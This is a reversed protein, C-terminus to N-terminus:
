FFLKLTSLPSVSRDIHFFNFEISLSLIKTKFKLVNGDYNELKIVKKRFIYTINYFMAHMCSQFSLLFWSM